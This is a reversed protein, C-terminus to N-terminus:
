GFAGHISRVDNLRSQTTPFQLADTRRCHVFVTFVDLFVGSKFTAELGHFDIRGRDVLRDLNKFPQARFVLGMMLCFEGIFCELGRDSEGIAVDGSTEKGVFCDVDHIFGTRARADVRHSTRRINLLDLLFNFINAKFFFRCDFRLIKLFSGRKTIALLLGFLLEIGNQVLPALLAFLFFHDYRCVVHHM